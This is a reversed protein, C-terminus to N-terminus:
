VTEAKVGPLSIGAKDAKKARDQLYDAFGKDPNRSDLFHNCLLAADVVTVVRTKKASVTRGYEGGAKAKPAVVPVVPAVAEAVKAAIEAEIEAAPLVEPAPQGYAEAQKREAELQDEREKRLRAAEAAAAEIAAQERRKTEERAAADLRAQEALLFANIADALAKGDDLPQKGIFRNWFADIQNVKQLHPAKEVDHAAKGLKVLTRFRDLLTRGKNASEQTTIGAKTLEAIEAHVATLQEPLPKDAEIGRQEEETMERAPKGDPWRGTKLAVEFDPKTVAVCNLWDREVFKAWNGENDMVFQPKFPGKAWYSQQLTGDPNTATYILVPFDPKTKAAEVRWYGTMELPRTTRDLRRAEPTPEKLEAFYLAWSVKAPDTM